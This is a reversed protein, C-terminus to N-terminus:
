RRLMVRCSLWNLEIRPTPAPLNTLFFGLQLRVQEKTRVGSAGPLRRRGASNSGSLKCPVQDLVYCFQFCTRPGKPDQCNGREGRCKTLFPYLDWPYTVWRLSTGLSVATAGHDWIRPKSVGSMVLCPPRPGSLEGILGHHTDM